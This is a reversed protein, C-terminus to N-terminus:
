WSNKITIGGSGSLRDPYATEAVFLVQTVQKRASAYGLLEQQLERDTADCLFSIIDIFLFCESGKM